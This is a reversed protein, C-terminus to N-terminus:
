SEVEDSIVHKYKNYIFSIILLLIGLSVFVITKAITDLHSIDYFFLKLLTIALLGIAGIRIHKKKQSIGLVILLLSYVGWLISLGFKYTQGSGAIDMWGILESSLIWLLSVHFLLDFIVRYKKETFEQKVYMFCTYMLVAFFAISVYRIGLHFAGRNYYEANEQLLYSARLDSIDYLGETLFVGIALINLGINLLSLKKNKLKKINIVSLISLFLLSYNIVWISKFLRLDHNMIFDSYSDTETNLQIESAYYLQEWYMKIELRFTSYLVFLFVLPLCYQIFKYLKKQEALKAPYNKNQNLYNILGFFGSVLISSLFAINFVPTKPQDYAYTYSDYIDGWDELLSFFALFFLTYSIKEIFTVQKTRGIWFLLAAEGAWLLTVWNGDLQVPIAMTIFIMVMGLALYLLNRDVESKKYIILSVAFHLVANFLTFLGLLEKGIEHQDLIAFSLGFFVFSNLLVLVVDRKEFKEKQMLKYALFIAYFTIFYIPLFTLAIGFHETSNYDIVYWSSVILWTFIFAAYYLAKWYKKFAIILIGINIIAMYIFLVVVKGSGDSLLFPVAYAGVLGFVAIVQKNYNIAALVTFATFVVMLAFTMEQPILEYFSYAAFTIFYMIAMSGSLLVASFNSYNKKLKIAFGLLGAGLAYGMIIRTLPSLLENDIAYKVGVGVGIVTILIGIKSILNEGIFKELNVPLKPLERPKRPAKRAQQPKAEPIAYEETVISEKILDEQQVEAKEDFVSQQETESSQYDASQLKLLQERITKIEKSFAEHKRELVDLRITLLNIKKDRDNM